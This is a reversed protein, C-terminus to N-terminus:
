ELTSYGESRPVHENRRYHAPGPAAVVASAGFLAAVVVTSFRMVFIHSRISQFLHGASYNHLLFRLKLFVSLGGGDKYIGMM